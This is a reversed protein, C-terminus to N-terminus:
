KIEEIQPYIPQNEPKRFSIKYKHLSETLIRNLHESFLRTLGFLNRYPLRMPGLLAVAGAITQNIRYPIAIIACESQSPVFPCLEDGIWCTLENKKCCERLIIRMQHEDELLSLSGALAAADNFEPYALLKSLGTRLIDENHFNTYGVVHRVMIENYIRQAM